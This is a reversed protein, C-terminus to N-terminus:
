STSVLLNQSSEAQGWGLQFLTELEALHETALCYPLAGDFFVNWM